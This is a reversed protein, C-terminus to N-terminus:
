KVDAIREGLTENDILRTKGVRAALAALTPRDVVDVPELTEPDALAVYDVDLRAAALLERMRALITGADTTGQEVLERALRLSRSIAVARLREDPSLYVNRSSLALGDAERVIPCIRVDIPLDLDHTMRRVLLAQQYDKRGFYARDPQALHFLKLVITAVGRFHGPRHAGELVLAPGHLEVYTAYGPPYMADTAPAFVVDVSRGELSSLDADLDRPYHDFDESPGFQTPNVFITVITFDCEDVSADVLSLHGAHLAGMTPVLGITKGRRRALAVRDRLEAADVVLRPPLSTRPAKM